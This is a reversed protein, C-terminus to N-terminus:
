PGEQHWRAVVLFRFSPDKLFDSIHQDLPRDASSNRRLGSRCKLALLIWCEKDANRLQDWGIRGFGPMVDRQYETMFSNVLLEHNEFTLLDAMELVMGRRQLGRKLLVDSAGHVKPVVSDVTAARRTGDLGEKM